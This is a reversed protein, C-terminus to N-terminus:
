CDAWTQKGIEWSIRASRSIRVDWMQWNWSSDIHRLTQFFSNGTAPSRARRVAGAQKDYEEDKGQGEAGAVDAIGESRSGLRSIGFRGPLRFFATWQGAKDITGFLIQHLSGAGIGVSDSEDTGFFYFPAVGAEAAGMRIFHVRLHDGGAEKDNQFGAAVGEVVM